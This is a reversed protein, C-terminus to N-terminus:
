RKIKCKYLLCKVNLGHLNINYLASSSGSKLMILCVKVSAFVQGNIKKMPNSCYSSQICQYMRHLNLTLSCDLKKEKLTM